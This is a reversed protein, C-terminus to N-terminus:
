HILPSYKRARETAMDAYFAFINMALILLTIFNYYDYFLLQRVHLHSSHEIYHCSHVHSSTASHFSHPSKFLTCYGVITIQHLSIRLCQTCSYATFRTFSITTSSVVFIFTLHSNPLWTLSGSFHTLAHFLSLLSHNISYILELSLTFNLHLYVLLRFLIALNFQMLLIFPQSVFNKQFLMGFFLHM